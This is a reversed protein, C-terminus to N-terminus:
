RQPKRRSPRVPAPGPTGPGAADARGSCESPLVTAAESPCPNPDLNVVCQEDIRVGEVIGARIWRTLCARATSRSRYHTQINDLVTKLPQPGSSTLYAKLMHCTGHFPTWHKGRSGAPAFTKQAPNLAARLRDALVPARLLSAPIREQVEDYVDVTFAGVGMQYLAWEAFRRGEKRRDTNPTAVSILPAYRRWEWAQELVALSLAKKVEIVWILAGQVAVIDAVGPGCAVEQYVDWRSDELWRV